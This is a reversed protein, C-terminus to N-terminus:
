SIQCKEETKNTQLQKQNPKLIIKEINDWLEEISTSQILKLYRNHYDQKTFTLYKNGGKLADQLLNEGAFPARRISERLNESTLNFNFQQFHICDSAYSNTIFPNYNSVSYSGKQPGLLCNTPIMCYALRFLLFLDKDPYLNSLEIFRAPVHMTYCLHLNRIAQWNLLLFNKENYDIGEYDIRIVAVEDDISHIYPILGMKNLLEIYREIYEKSSYKDSLPNSFDDTKLYVKMELYCDKFMHNYYDGNYRVLGNTLTDDIKLPSQFVTYVFQGCGNTISNVRSKNPNNRSYEAEAVKNWVTVNGRDGSGLYEDKIVTLISKNVEGM